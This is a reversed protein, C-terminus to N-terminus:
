MIQVDQLEPNLAHGLTLLVGLPREAPGSDKSRTREGTGLACPFREGEVEWRQICTVIETM